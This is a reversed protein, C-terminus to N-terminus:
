GSIGIKRSILGNMSCGWRSCPKGGFLLLVPPSRTQNGSKKFREMGDAVFECRAGDGLRYWAGAVVQVSAPMRPVVERLFDLAFPALVDDADLFKIWEARSREIGRNRAQAVGARLSNRLWLVRRGISDEIKQCPPDTSADDVVILEDMPSLQWVVSSLARALTTDQNRVPIILAISPSM